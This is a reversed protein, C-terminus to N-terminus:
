GGRARAAPAQGGSGPRRAALWVGGFYCALAVAWLGAMILSSFAHGYDLFSTGNFGAGVIALAGLVSLVLALPGDRRRALAISALAAVALALGFAAHAAAWGPGDSIVWALGSVAGTFYDGTV